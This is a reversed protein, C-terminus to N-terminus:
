GEDNRRLVIPLYDLMVGQGKAVIECNAEFWDLPLSKRNSAAIFNLLQDIWLLWTKNWERFHILIFAKGGHKAVKELYEVQHKH